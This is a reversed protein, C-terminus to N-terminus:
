VNNCKLRLRDINETEIERVNRDSNGNEYLWIYKQCRKVGTRTSAWILHPYAYGFTLLPPVGMWECIGWGALGGREQPPSKQKGLRMLFSLTRHEAKQEIHELEQGGLPPQPQDDQQEPADM